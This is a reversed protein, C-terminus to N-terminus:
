ALCGKELLSVQLHVNRSVSALSRILTLQASGTKGTLIPEGFVNTYMIALLRNLPFTNVNKWGRSFLFALLPYIWLTWLLHTETSCHREGHAREAKVPVTNTVLRATGLPLTDVKCWVSLNGWETHLKKM